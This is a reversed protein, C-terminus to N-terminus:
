RPHIVQGFGLPGGQGGCEALDPGGGRVAEQDTEGRQSKQRVGSRTM